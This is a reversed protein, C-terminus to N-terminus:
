AWPNSDIPSSFRNPKAPFSRWGLCQVADWALVMGWLRRRRRFIEWAAVASDKSHLAVRWIKITTLTISIHHSSYWNRRWRIRVLLVALRLGASTASFYSPHFGRAWHEFYLRWKSFSPTSPAKHHNCIWLILLDFPCWSRGGSPMGNPFFTPAQKCNSKTTLYWLTANSSAARSGSCLRCCIGRKSEPHPAPSRAFWIFPPCASPAPARGIWIWVGPRWFCIWCRVLYVSVTVFIM